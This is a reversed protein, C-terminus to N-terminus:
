QEHLEERNFVYNKPFKFSHQQLQELFRQKRPELTQEMEIVEEDSDDLVMVRLKKGELAADLKEDLVLSGDQYTAQLVKSM